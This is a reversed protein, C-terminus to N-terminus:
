HYLSANTIKLENLYKTNSFFTLDESTANSLTKIKEFMVKSSLKCNFNISNEEIKKIEIYKIKEFHQYEM